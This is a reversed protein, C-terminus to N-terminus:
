HGKNKSEASRSLRVCCGGPEPDIAARWGDWGGGDLFGEMFALNMGCVLPPYREALTWFPCNHLRVEDGDAAPEYGREALADVLDRSPDAAERGKDRATAFLADDAGLRELTEALVLAAEDYRRPPLSM